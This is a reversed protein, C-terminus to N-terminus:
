DVSASLANGTRAGASLVWGGGRSLQRGTGWGVLIPHWRFECFSTEVQLTLSPDVAVSRVM